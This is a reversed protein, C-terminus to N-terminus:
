PERGREQRPDPGGKMAAVVKTGQETLKYTVLQRSSPGSRSVEVVYGRAMRKAKDM